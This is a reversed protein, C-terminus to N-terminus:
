DTRSHQGDRRVSVSCGYCPLIVIPGSRRAKSEMRLWFIDYWAQANACINNLLKIM